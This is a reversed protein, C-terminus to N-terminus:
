IPQSKSGFVFLYKRKKQKNTQKHFGVKRKKEKRKRGNTVENLHGELYIEENKV